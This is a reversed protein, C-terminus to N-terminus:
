NCLLRHQKSFCLTIQLIRDPAKGTLVHCFSLSVLVLPNPLSWGLPPPSPLSYVLCLSLKHFSSSSPHRACWLFYHHLPTTPHLSHPYHTSCTPPSTLPSTCFYAPSPWTPDGARLPSGQVRVTLISVSNGWSCTHLGELTKIEALWFTGGTWYNRLVKRARPEWLIRLSLLFTRWVLVKEPFLFSCKILM